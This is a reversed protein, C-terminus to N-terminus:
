RIQFLISRKPASYFLEMPAGKALSKSPFFSKFEVLAAGTRESATEDFTAAVSPVKMRAVLARSFGDRLHPLSTNRLPVIVVAADAKELLCDILAEGTPEKRERSPLSYPGLIREPTYGEFGALKGNRALELERESVYFAVAYVKISLFSVTRVGTGVLSLPVGDPSVITAPFPTQTTPDLYTRETPPSPPAEAHVVPLSPLLEPKLDWLSYATLAAGSVLATAIWPNRSTTRVFPRTSSSFTRLPQAASRTSRGLARTATTSLM